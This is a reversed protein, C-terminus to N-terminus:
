QKGQKHIEYADQVPDRGNIPTKGWKDRLISLCHGIDDSNALALACANFAMDYRAKASMGKKIGEQPNESASLCKKLKNLFHQKDMDGALWALSCEDIAKAFDAKTYHQKLRLWVERSFNLGPLAKVEQWEKDAKAGESEGDPPVSVSASVSASTDINDKVTKSLRHKRQKERFYARLEENSKLDRYDAHRDVFYRFGTELVLRAGGHDKCHSDPDPGTLYVIAERIRYEEEGIVAALLRPNLEVTHDEPDANAIVYGWVAFVHSGAGVMSGQYMKSFAKGYM